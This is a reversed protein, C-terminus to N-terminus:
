RDVGAPASAQEPSVSRWEIAADRTPFTALLDSAGALEFLRAATTGPPAVVIFEEDHDARQQCRALASLISSDIFTADSLDVIVCTGTAFIDMVSTELQDATSVDHDGELAVVWLSGALQQTLIRPQQM